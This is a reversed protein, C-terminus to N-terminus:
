KLKVFDNFEQHVIPNVLVFDSGRKLTPKKHYTRCDLWLDVNVNVSPRCEEGSSTHEALQMLWLM